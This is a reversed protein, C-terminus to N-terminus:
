FGVSYDSLVAAVGDDIVTNRCSNTNPFTHSCRGGHLQYRRGIGGKLM